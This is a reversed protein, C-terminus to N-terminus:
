MPRTRSRKLICDVLDAEVGSGMLRRNDWRSQRVDQGSPSSIFDTNYASATPKKIYVIIAVRGSMAWAIPTTLLNICGLNIGNSHLWAHIQIDLPCVLGQCGRRNLYSGLHLPSCRSMSQRNHPCDFTLLRINSWIRCHLLRKSISFEPTCYWKLSWPRIWLRMQRPLLPNKARDAPTYTKVLWDWNPELPRYRYSLHQQKTLSDREDCAELCISTRYWKTRSQTVEAFSYRSFIEVVSLM